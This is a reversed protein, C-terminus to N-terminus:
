VQATFASSTPDLHSQSSAYLQNLASRLHQGTADESMGLTAAVERRSMGGFFALAVVQRQTEPLGHVVRLVEDSTGLLKDPRVRERSRCVAAHRRVAAALWGLLRPGLQELQEANGWLEAFAKGVAEEAAEADQAIVYALNYLIGGIADYLAELARVDGAVLRSVLAPDITPGVAPSAQTM